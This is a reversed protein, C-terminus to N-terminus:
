IWFGCYLKLKDFDPFNNKFVIKQSAEVHLKNNPANDIDTTSYKKFIFNEVMICYKLDPNETEFKDQLQVKLHDLM